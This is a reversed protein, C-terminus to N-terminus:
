GREDQSHLFLPAPASCFSSHLLSPSSPPHGAPCLALRSASQPFSFTSGLLIATHGVWIQTNRRMKRRVIRPGAGAFHSACIQPSGNCLSAKGECITNFAYVQMWLHEKVEHLDAGGNSATHVRNVYSMLQFPSSSQAPPLKFLHKIIFKFKEILYYIDVDYLTQLQSLLAELFLESSLLLFYFSSCNLKLAIITRLLM